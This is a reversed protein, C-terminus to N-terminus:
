SQSKGNIWLFKIIIRVSTFYAGGVTLPFYHSFQQKLTSYAGMRYLGTGGLGVSAASQGYGCFEISFKMQSYLALHRMCILVILCAM